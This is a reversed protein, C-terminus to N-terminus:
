IVLKKIAMSYGLHMGHHQIVYEIGFDFSNVQLGTSTVFPKFASFVENAYDEKLKALGEAAYEKITAYEQLTIYKEPKTGVKYAHVFEENLRVPLGSRWYCLMQLSSIIHAFNWILNNSYKEPVKNIQEETLSDLLKALNNQALELIAFQNEM